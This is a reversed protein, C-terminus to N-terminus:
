STPEPPEFVQGFTGFYVHARMHSALKLFKLNKRYSLIASPDDCRLVFSPSFLTHDVKSMQLIPTHPTGPTAM